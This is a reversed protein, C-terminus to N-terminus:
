KKIEKKSINVSVFVEQEFVALLSHSVIVKRMVDRRSVGIDHKFRLSDHLFTHYNDTARAVVDFQDPTLELIYKKIM